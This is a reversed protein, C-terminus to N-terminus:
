WERIKQVEPVRAELLGYLGFLEKVRSDSETTSVSPTEERAAFAHKALAGIPSQKKPKSATEASTKTPNTTATINSKPPM